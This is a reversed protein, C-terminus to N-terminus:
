FIFFLQFLYDKLEKRLIKLANTIHTEVTRQSLQLKQAIEKSSLGEFRSMIFIERCKPTLRDIATEIMEKLESEAWFDESIPSPQHIQRQIYKERTGSKRIVDICSNRVSNVLHFRISVAKLTQRNEWMKIFVSQVIDEASEQDHLYRDAFIVLSSYYYDFLQTFIKRDGEKL